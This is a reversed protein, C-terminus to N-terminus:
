LKRRKVMIEKAHVIKDEEPEDVPKLRKKAALRTRSTTKVNDVGDLEAKVVVEEEKAEIKAVLRESFAKLDATFLVSHAWGAEKGWLDRFHNAIATYM